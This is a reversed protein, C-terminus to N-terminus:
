FLHNNELNVYRNKHNKSTSEPIRLFQFLVFDNQYTSSNSNKYKFLFLYILLNLVNNLLSDHIECANWHHKHNLM